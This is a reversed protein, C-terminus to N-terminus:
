RGEPQAREYSGAPALPDPNLGILDSEMQAIADESGRLEAATRVAFSVRVISWPAPVFFRDWSPIRWARDYNIGLLVSRVGAKRALTIGGGKLKYAPGRPGDPTLGVDDGADLRDALGHLAARGHKSSSGRVTGLGALEFFAALWAGDKSASVLAHIRKSPRLQRFLEPVAFLRNHWLVFIVPEDRLGFLAFDAAPIEFKLTRGWLRLFAVLPWLIFSRWGRINHVKKLQEPAM